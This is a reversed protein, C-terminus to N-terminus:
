VREECNTNSHAWFHELRVFIYTKKLKLKKMGFKNKKLKM